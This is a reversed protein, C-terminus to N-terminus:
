ETFIREVIEHILPQYFMLITHRDPMTYDKPFPSQFGSFIELYDKTVPYHARALEDLLYDDKNTEMARAFFNKSASEIRGKFQSHFLPENFDPSTQFESQSLPSMVFSDMAEKANQYNAYPDASFNQYYEIHHADDIGRGREYNKLWEFNNRIWHPSEIVATFWQLFNWKPNRSTGTFFNWIGRTNMDGCILYTYHRNSLLDNYAKANTENFLWREHSGFPNLESFHGLPAGRADATGGLIPSVDFVTARQYLSVLGEDHAINLFTSENVGLRAAKVFARHYSISHHMYEPDMKGLAQLLAERVVLNGNSITIFIIESAPHTTLPETIQNVTPYLPDVPIKGLLMLNLMRGAAVNSYKRTDYKFTGFSVSASVQKAKQAIRDRIVTFDTDMNGTKEILESGSFGHVFIVLFNSDRSSAHSALSLFIFSILTLLIRM